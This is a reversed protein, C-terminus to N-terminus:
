MQILHLMQNQYSSPKVCTIIYLTHYNSTRFIKVSLIYWINKVTVRTSNTSYSWQVKCYYDINSEAWMESITETKLLFFQSIIGMLTQWPDMQSFVSYVIRPWTWWIWCYIFMIFDYLLETEINLLLWWRIGCQVM